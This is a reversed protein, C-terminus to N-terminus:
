SHTQCLMFVASAIAAGLFPGLIPVWSYSWDSSRKFPIPLLLHVIRPGLDRAPNIAYGTPGGLSVGIGLVVLAVPLANLAGLGVEPAAMYLVALVLVFTGVVETLVNHFYSRINPSTCFIALKADGDETIDFHRKYTVWVLFAGLMAGWLQALVYGPMSALPFKGVLVLGLTVAPNLHAGSFPAAVFVGVFVGVAWGVTIVIWGGNNGKTKNLLVNAVVGGGFLIIIATGIVEALLPSM